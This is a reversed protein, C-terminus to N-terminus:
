LLAYAHSGATQFEFELECSGVRRGSKTSPRSTTDALQSGEEEEGEDDDPDEHDFM